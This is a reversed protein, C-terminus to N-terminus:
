FLLLCEYEIDKDNIAGFVWIKVANILGNSFHYYKSHREKVSEITEFEHKRRFSASFSTCLDSWDCYLCICFLHTLEMNKAEDSKIYENGKIGCRKKRNANATFLLYYLINDFLIDM